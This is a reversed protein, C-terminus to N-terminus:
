SSFVAIRTSHSPSLYSGTERRHTSLATFALTGAAYGSSSKEGDGNRLDQVQKTSMSTVHWRHRWNLDIERRSLESSCLEPLVNLAVQKAFVLKDTRVTVGALHGSLRVVIEAWPRHAVHPSSEVQELAVLLESHHDNALFSWIV